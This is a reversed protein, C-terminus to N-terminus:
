CFQFCLLNLCFRLFRQFNNGLGFSNSSLPNTWLINRIQNFVSRFTCRLPQVLLLTFHTAYDM